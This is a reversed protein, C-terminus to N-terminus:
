QVNVQVDVTCFTSSAQVLGWTTTQSGTGTKANMDIVLTISNGPGVDSPLDIASTKSQFKAGSLYEFDVGNRSWNQTGINKVTVSLDFDSGNPLNAGINPQLNTISCQYAGQTPVLTPAATVIIVKTPVQTPPVPTMTMTETPLPTNTPPPTPTVALTLQTYVSQVAETKAASLTSAFIQPDVTPLPTPQANCGLLSLLSILLFTKIAILSLKKLINRVGLNKNRFAGATRVEHV